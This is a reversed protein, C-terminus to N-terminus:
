FVGSSNGEYSELYFVLYIWVLKLSNGEGGEIGVCWVKGFLGVFVWM